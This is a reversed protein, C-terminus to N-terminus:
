KLLKQMANQIILRGVGRSSARVGYNYCAKMTELLAMNAVFCRELEKKSKNKPELWTGQEKAINMLITKSAKM